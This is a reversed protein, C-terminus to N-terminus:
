STLYLLAGFAGLILIFFAAIMMCLAAFILDGVVSIWRRRRPRTELAYAPEKRADAIPAALAITYKSAAGL